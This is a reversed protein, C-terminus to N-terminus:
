LAVMTLMAGVVMMLTVTFILATIVSLLNVESEDDTFSNETM